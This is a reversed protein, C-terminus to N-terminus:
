RASLFGAFGVVFSVFPVFSLTGEHEEHERTSSGFVNLNNRIASKLEDVAIKVRRTAKAILPLTEPM